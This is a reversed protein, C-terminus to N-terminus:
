NNQMSLYKKIAYNVPNKIERCLSDPKCVNLDRYNSKDCNPPLRAPNRSFWILQSQIYGKKLPLYNKENWENIRRELEQESLGLSKFFNILIFLARKRGDQPVGKLILKICPPFINENPNQISIQKYSKQTEIPEQKGESLIKDQKDRQDKWDLAQLLLYKAEGEEADPYFNKIEVKLPKADTIQFDKIRDKNIVISALATKEHLSYPMRFLHRPAVLVLDAEILNETAMRERDFFEPNKKSNISCYNCFYVKEREKEILDKRCEPCKPKKRNNFTGEPNVIENRCSPCYWTIMDRKEVNRKCIRCIRIILEEEKKGTREAIERLNIDYLIENELKKQLEDTLYECIIRPWEPFMEKTKQSYIEKPFAKWPIIIHFGKSGSFKIGINKIGHFELIKILLFAYRKSYELYPSDIDLLLDWGERLDDTEKKSLETSLQLPDKWLEESCHFSTAGKKVFGLIDSEYQFDDPRKGFGEFYKPICERKKSFEFLANRVDKRSYYMFTIGRIRKEKISGSDDSDM